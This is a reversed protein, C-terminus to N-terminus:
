ENSQSDYKHEFWLGFIYASVHTLYLKENEGSNKGFYESVRERERKGEGEGACTALIYIDNKNCEKKNSSSTWIGNERIKGRKWAVFM